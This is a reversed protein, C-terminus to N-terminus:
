TLSLPRAEPRRFNEQSFAFVTIARIGWAVSLQLIKKLARSGAEHGEATTLGRAEAWRRNGDMVFAVHRPMLEKRLGRQVLAQPLDDDAM